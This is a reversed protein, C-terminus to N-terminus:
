GFAPPLSRDPGRTLPKSLSPCFCPFPSDQSEMMLSLRVFHDFVDLFICSSFLQVLRAPPGCLLNANIKQSFRFIRVRRRCSFPESKESKTSRDRFFAVWSVVQFCCASALSHRSQVFM